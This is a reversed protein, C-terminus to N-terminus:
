CRECASQEKIRQLRKKERLERMLRINAEEIKLKEEREKIFETYKAHISGSGFLFEEDAHESAKKLVYDADKWTKM